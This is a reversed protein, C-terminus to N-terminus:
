HEQKAARIAKRWRPLNARQCHEAATLIVGAFICAPSHQRARYTRDLAILTPM